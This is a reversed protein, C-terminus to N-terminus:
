IDLKIEFTMDSHQSKPIPKGLKALAILENADNYLGVTTVYPTFESGTINSAVTGNSGSVATRNYTFNMESDKVRCQVNYTYIPQSAKWEVVPNLYTSYYNAIDRDTIIVQGHTYIVDGVVREQKTYQEASGSIVLNGEGDDVLEVRQQNNPIEIYQASSEDVYDSEDDIYDSTVIGGTGGYLSSFNDVFENDGTAADVAYGDVIYNNSENQVPKLVFTEKKIHTGFLNRPISVATVQEGISRSGPKTITSQAFHDYSGTYTNDGRSGRYYLQDLGRWVLESSRGKYIDSPYSSLSSSIGRVFDVNYESLLSGSANWSKHAVYDSVYIDQRNLKKYASM